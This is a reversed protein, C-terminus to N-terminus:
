RSANGALRDFDERAINAGTLVVCIPGKLNELHTQVFGITIASSPEVVLAHTKHLDALAQRIADDTVLPVQVGTETIRKQVAPHPIEVILGDAITPTRAHEFKAYKPYNYPECAFLEVPEPRRRLFETIGQLLGGGGLPFVLSRCSPLADLIEAAIEQYGDTWQPDLHPHVAYGGREKAILPAQQLLVSGGGDLKVLEVGLATLKEEKAKSINKAVVGLVSFGLSKAATAAGLATNGMSPVVLLKSSGSAGLRELLHLAGRIKFSGSAALFECKAYVERKPFLNTLRILPTQNKPM